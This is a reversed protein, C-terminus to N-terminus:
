GEHPVEEEDQSLTTFVLVKEASVEAFGGEVPFKEERQDLRYTIWGKGLATLLTRHGPLVGIYGELGPLSVAKVEIDVLLKQPTIVKLHLSAPLEKSM